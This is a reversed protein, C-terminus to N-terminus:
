RADQVRIRVERGAAVDQGGAASVILRYAGPAVSSLPLALTVTNAAMPELRWPLSAATVGDPDMLTVSGAVPTKPNKRHVQFFIRLTEDRAFERDLSPAFPVTIGVLPKSEVVRPSSPSGTGVLIGSLAV